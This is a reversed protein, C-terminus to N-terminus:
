DSANSLAHDAKGDPIKKTVICVDHYRQVSCFRAKLELTLRIFSSSALFFALYFRCLLVSHTRYPFLLCTGYGDGCMEVCAQPVPCVIETLVDKNPRREWHLSSLTQNPASIWKDEWFSFPLNPLKAHKSCLFKMRCRESTCITLFVCLLCSKEM